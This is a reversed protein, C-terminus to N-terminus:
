PQPPQCVVLSVTGVSLPLAFPRCQWGAAAGACDADQCCPQSCLKQSQGPYQGCIGGSCDTSAACAQGTSKAGTPLQCSRFVVTQNTADSAQLWQCTGGGTGVCAANNCCTVPALCSCGGFTCDGTGLSTCLGNKCDSDTNCPDNNVGSCGPTGFCQTDSVFPQCSPVFSGNPTPGLACFHKAATCNADSCCPTGCATGCSATVRTTVCLNGGTTPYCTFAPGGCDAATCCTKSCVSTSTLTLGALDSSPICSLGATCQSSTTCPDGIAGTTTAAETAAEAADHGADVGVDVGTDIPADFGADVVPVCSGGTCAQCFGNLCMTGTPCSTAQTGTCAVPSPVSGGVIAECGGGGVLASLLAGAVSFARARALFSRGLM